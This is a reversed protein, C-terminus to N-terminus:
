ASVFPRIQRLVDASTAPSAFPGDPAIARGLLQALAAAHRAEVSHISLAAALVQKSQIRAVQGLYAAAGLSEIQAATDLVGAETELPFSFKPEAPVTGGLNRMTGSLTEVHARENELFGKALELGRGTLRGSAIAEEYFAVELQELAVAYGVIGADGQGYSATGVGAGGFQNGTEEEDGCAALFAPLVAAAGVGAMRLFRKRSSPDAALEDLASRPRTHDARDM